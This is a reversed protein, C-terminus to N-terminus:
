EWHGVQLIWTEQETIKPGSYNRSRNTHTSTRAEVLYSSAIVLTQESQAGWALPGAAITRYHCPLDVQNVHIALTAMEYHIFLMDAIWPIWQPLDPQKESWHNSQIPLQWWWRALALHPLPLDPDDGLCTVWILWLAPQSHPFGLITTLAPLHRIDIIARPRATIFPNLKTKHDRKLSICSSM